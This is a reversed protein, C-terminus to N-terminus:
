SEDKEEKGSLVELTIKSNRAGPVPGSVYVSNDEVKVIKLGKITVRVNGKRGAMKKGKYVRGPTQSGISGPTRSTIGQGRTAPGGKFGWRKMVGTFGKGKSKGIVVVDVGELSPDVKEDVGIVTVPIVKGNEGFVQSMNLKKGKITKNDM